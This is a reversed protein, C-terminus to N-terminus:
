APVAVRPLLDIAQEALAMIDAASCGGKRLAEAGRLVALVLLALYGPNAEPDIDGDCQAESITAALESRYSDLSRKVRRVVVTDTSGLEAASKAMLCGRRASDAANTRAINRIHDVLRDYARAESGRLEDTVGAIVTTCYEDLARIFLARKDGFASYLSGRGLGTVETLDDLSTGAYGHSWFQDRAAAIVDDEAFKRPRAM